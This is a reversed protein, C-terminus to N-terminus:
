EISKVNRFFTGAIQIIRFRGVFHFGHPFFFNGVKETIKLLHCAFDSRVFGKHEGRVTHPNLITRIGIRSEQFIKVDKTRETKRTHRLTIQGTLLSSIQKLIEAVLGTGVQPKVEFGEKEIRIHGQIRSRYVM